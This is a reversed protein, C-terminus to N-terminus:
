KAWLSQIELWCSPHFVSQKQSASIGRTRKCIPTDSTRLSAKRRPWALRGAGISRGCEARDLTKRDTLRNFGSSVGLDSFNEEISPVKPLRVGIGHVLGPELPRNVLVGDLRVTEDEADREVGSVCRLRVGRQDGGRVGDEDLMAAVVAGGGRDDSELELMVREGAVEDVDRGGASPGAVAALRAGGVLEVAVQQIVVPEDNQGLAGLVSAFEEALDVAGDHVRKNLVANVAADSQHVVLSHAGIAVIRVARGAADCPGGHPERPHDLVEERQKGRPNRHQRTRCVGPRPVVARHHVHLAVQSHGVFVVIVVVLVGEFRVSVAEVGGSDQLLYSSMERQTSTGSMRESEIQECADVSLGTTITFDADAGAAGFTICSAVYVLGHSKFVSKYSSCGSRSLELM